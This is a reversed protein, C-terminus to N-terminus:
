RSPAGIPDCTRSSTRGSRRRARWRTCSCSPCGAAAATTPRCPSRRSGHSMWAPEQPRIIMRGRGAAITGIIQGRDRASTGGAAGGSAGQTVSADQSGSTAAARASGEDMSGGDRVELRRGRAQQQPM